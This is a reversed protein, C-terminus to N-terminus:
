AALPTPKAAELDRRLEVLESFYDMSLNSSDFRLNVEPSSLVTSPAGLAFILALKTTRVGTAANFYVGEPLVFRELRARAGLPFSTWMSTASSILWRLASIVDDLSENSQRTTLPQRLASLQSDVARLREDFLDKSYIGDERMELIRTRRRTLEAIGADISAASSASTDARERWFERIDEELVQLAAEGPTIDRIFREFANHLVESRIRKTTRRCAVASCFYYAYQGGNGRSM